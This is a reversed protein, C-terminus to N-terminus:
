RETFLTKYSKNDVNYIGTEWVHGEDYYDKSVIFENNKNVSIIYMEPLEIIKGSAFEYLISHGDSGMPLHYTIILYKESFLLKKNYMDTSLDIFLVFNSDSYIDKRNISKKIEGLWQPQMLLESTKKTLDKQYVEPNGIRIEEYKILELGEIKLNRVLWNVLHINPNKSYSKSSDRGLFAFGSKYLTFKKM